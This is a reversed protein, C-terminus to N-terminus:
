TELEASWFLADDLQRAVIAAECIHARVLTSFTELSADALVQLGETVMRAGADFQGRKAQCLGMVSLAWGSNSDISHTQGHELLEVMEGEILDLDPESQYANRFACEMALRNPIAFGSTRAGSGAQEGM